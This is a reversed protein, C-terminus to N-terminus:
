GPNLPYREKGARTPTCGLRVASANVRTHMRAMGASANVVRPCCTQSEPRQGGVQTLSVHGCAAVSGRDRMSLSPKRAVHRGGPAQEHEFGSARPLSRPTM